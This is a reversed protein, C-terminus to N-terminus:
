KIIGILKKIVRQEDVSFRKRESGHKVYHDLSRFSWRISRPSKKKKFSVLEKIETAYREGRTVRLVANFFRAFAAQGTLNPDADTDKILKQIEEDARNWQQDIILAEILDLRVLASWRQDSEASIFADAAEIIDGRGDKLQDWTNSKGPQIRALMWGINAQLRLMLHQTTRLEPPLRDQVEGAENAYRHAQTPDGAFLSFMGRRVLSESFDLRIESTARGIDELLAVVIKAKNTANHTIFIKALKGLFESAKGFRIKEDDTAKGDSENILADTLVPHDILEEYLEIAEPAADQTLRQEALKNTADFYVSTSRGNPGSAAVIKRTKRLFTDVRKVNGRAAEILALEYYSQAQLIPSGAKDAPRTSIHRFVIAALEPRNSEALKKGLEFFKQDSRMISPEFVEDLIEGPTRENNIVDPHGFVGNIVDELADALYSGFATSSLEGSRIKPLARRQIASKNPIRAYVVPTAVIDGRGKNDDALDIIGGVMADVRHTDMLTEPEPPLKCTTPDSIGVVFIRKHGRFKEFLITGIDETLRQAIRSGPASVKEFCGVLIRSFQPSRDKGVARVQFKVFADVISRAVRNIGPLLADPNTPLAVPDVKIPFGINSTGDRRTLEGDILVSDDLKVYVGSFVLDANVANLVQDSFLLKPDLPLKESVLARWLQSRPIVRIKQKYPLLAIYLAHSLGSGIAEAEASDLDPALPTIDKIVLLVQNERTTPKAAEQSWTNSPMLVTLALLVTVAWIASRNIAASHRSRPREFPCDRSIM